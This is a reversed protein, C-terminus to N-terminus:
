RVACPMDPLDKKTHITFNNLAEIGEYSEELAQHVLTQISKRDKAEEPLTTATNAKQSM